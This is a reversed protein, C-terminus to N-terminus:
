RVKAGVKAEEDFSVLTLGKKKDTALLMGHSEVGMLKTPKLNIVVAVQKGILDDPKYDKGMGAVITREEGIDIKLKLLKNSKPVVEAEIIRAVRIDVKEFDGFSIEKKIDTLQKVENVKEKEHKIRPFLADGRTLSNGFSLGGWKETSDFNQSAINKIGLRNLLEKSSDPMVPTILVAAIRLAELTNYIVTELRERVSPDKALAWPEQAVIYKNTISIFDWVSILCKHFSLTRFSSEVESFLNEAREILAADAETQVGAKPVKGDCYKIAM